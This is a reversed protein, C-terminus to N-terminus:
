TVINVQDECERNIRGDVANNRRVAQYKLVAAVDEIAGFGSASPADVRRLHDVGEAALGRSHESSAACGAFADFFQQAPQPKGIVQDM